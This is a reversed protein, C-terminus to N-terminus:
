SNVGGETKEKLIQYLAQLLGYYRRRIAQELAITTTENYSEAILRRRQLADIWDAERSIM